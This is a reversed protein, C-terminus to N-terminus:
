SIQCEFCTLNVVLLYPIQFELDRSLILYYPLNPRLIAIYNIKIFNPVWFLDFLTIIFINVPISSRSGFNFIQSIQDWFQFTSWSKHFKASVVLLAHKIHIYYKSIDLVSLHNYAWFTSSYYSSNYNRYYNWTCFSQLNYFKVWLWFIVLQSLVM